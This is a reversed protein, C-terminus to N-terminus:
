QRPVIGLKDFFNDLDGLIDTRLTWADKEVQKLTDNLAQRQERLTPRRRRRPLPQPPPLPQEQDYISPGPLHTTPLPGWAGPPYPLDTPPLGELLGRLREAATPPRHLAPSLTWLPSYSTVM